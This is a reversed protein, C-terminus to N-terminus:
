IILKVATQEITFPLPHIFLTVAHTAGTSM